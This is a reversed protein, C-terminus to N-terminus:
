PKSLPGTLLQFQIVYFLIIFQLHCSFLILDFPSITGTCAVFAYIPLFAGNLCAGAAKGERVLQRPLFRHQALRIRQVPDFLLIGSDYNTM